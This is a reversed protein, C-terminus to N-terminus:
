FGVGMVILAIGTILPIANVLCFGIKTIIDCYYERFTLGMVITGIIAIALGFCGYVVRNNIIGTFYLMGVVVFLASAIFNIIGILIEDNGKTISTIGFALFFIIFAIIAIGVYITNSILFM